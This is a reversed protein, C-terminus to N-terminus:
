APRTGTHLRRHAQVPPLQGSKPREPTPVDFYASPPIDVIGRLGLTDRDQPSLAAIATETARRLAAADQNPGAIYLHGPTPATCPGTQLLRAMPDWRCIMRWTQLDICAIDALGEAVARASHVHAGTEVTRAFRLGMGAAHTLPAAWGSQSVIENAALEMEPWDSPGRPDDARTVFVSAYYGPPCGPLGFDPTGIVQVRDWLSERWPLGCTQSFVLGPDAWHAMLDQPEDLVAPGPLGAAERTLDWLRQQAARTEPRLYMPLSATM